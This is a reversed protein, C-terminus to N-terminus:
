RKVLRGPKNGSPKLQDYVVQGNVWVKEIGSSIATPNSITANDKVTNPDFLVLDAFYGPAILGRNAIGLHAATAGTMKYVAEELNMIEQERVYRSLVRPFAGHGRPHGDHSGDSCINSHPWQLFKIVDVEAMSTAAIADDGSKEETLRIVRMLAEADSEKNIQAVEHITKGQFGPEATYKVLFSASPDFLERTAFQASAKNSFDKKPFLVRPTSMWMTYPYVDATIDIGQARAQQLRALIDTSTGWKSRMAIKFHSIQVPLKAQRGIEIIEDLAEELHVDESRIHSIYRGGVQATTKALELVEERSSYFAAEYELGTSLGLSGKQLQDILLKKMDDLEAITATRDLRDKLVQRRLSAHGTYTALNVAVPTRSLRAQISDIPSSGGDQGVVITTIGQSTAAVADPMSQLGWDHHSHSDIFGPALVLGKGDTVSEGRFTTLYGVEKVRDNLVRVSAERAPLGTGDIVKVNTILHTTPLSFKQDEWINRIARVWFNGSNDLVILTENKSTYRVILTRFGVWGGTHSVTEGEKDIRWGFGYTTKEGNNLKGPTLAEAMTAKKVLKESYLAQDWLLLDEASAYVNGDGMVGDYRVLDDLEKRGNEIKFGMIRDSPTTRMKLTYIFTNKLKLPKVVHQQLFVDPSMGSAKELISALTTYNTNCYVWKEGPTFVLPPKVNALLELLSQNTLTDLLTHHDRVLDFYEVLGSTQNMLHRVTIDPYPFQPLYKQVADDYALKGQEKLLMAMMTYFQKSVSALNFPSSSTVPNKSDFGSYGFSKKYLTKGKSAILVSGNFLQREYLYSLVSDIRQIKGQQGQGFVTPAFLIFLLTSIIYKM